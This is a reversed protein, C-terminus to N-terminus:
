SKSTLEDYERRRASTEDEELHLFHLIRHALPAILIGVVVLFIVGSFLAYFAAFLKGATSDIPNVPGMGGLIMAANLLSDVWSLRCIRHYGFVGIALSVLMLLFAAFGHEMMRKIFRSRSLIPKTRHEYMTFGNGM